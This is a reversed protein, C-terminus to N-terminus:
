FQDDEDEDRNKNKKKKKFCCCYVILAVIVVIIIIIVILVYWHIELWAIAGALLAGNLQLHYNYARPVVTSFGGPNIIALNAKNFLLDDPDNIQAYNPLTAIALNSSNVIVDTCPGNVDVSMGPEFFSGM